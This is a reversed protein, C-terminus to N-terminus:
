ILVMGPPRNIYVAKLTPNNVFLQGSIMDFNNGTLDIVELATCSKFSAGDVTTIFNNSADFYRLNGCATFTNTNIASMSCNSVTLYELSTFKQFLIPPIRSLFSNTFIVRRVNVDDFTILHNGSISTLVSDVGDLVCTYRNYQDLFYRCIKDSPCSGPTPSPTTVVATTPALTTTPQAGCPVPVDMSSTWNSFCDQLDAAYNQCNSSTLEYIQKDMPICSVNYVGYGFNYSPLTTLYTCIDPSIAAIPNERIDIYFSQAKINALNVKPPYTFLNQYLMVGSLRPLNAFLNVDISTLRNVPLYLSSLLPTNQFVNPPLCTLKNNGLYLMTLNQLGRFANEDIATANNDNLDLVDLSKCSEFAGVPIDPFIGGSIKLWRLEGCNPISDTTLVAIGCNYMYLYQLKPYIPFIGTPIYKFSQDYFWAGFTVPDIFNSPQGNVTIVENQQTIPTINYPSCSQM